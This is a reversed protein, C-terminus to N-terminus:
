VELWSEEQLFELIEKFDEFSLSRRTESITEMTVDDVKRILLYYHKVITM